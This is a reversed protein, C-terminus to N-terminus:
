QIFEKKQIAEMMDYKMKEAVSSFDLKELISNLTEADYEGHHAATEDINVGNVVSESALAPSLLLLTTSLSIFKM